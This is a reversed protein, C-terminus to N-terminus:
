LDDEVAEILADFQPDCRRWALIAERGAAMGAPTLAEGSEFMAILFGVCNALDDGMHRCAKLAHLLGEEM